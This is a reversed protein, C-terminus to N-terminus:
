GAWIAVYIWINLSLVVPFLKANMNNVMVMANKIYKQISNM